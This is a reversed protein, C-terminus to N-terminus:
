GPWADADISFVWRRRPHESLSWLVRTGPELSLDEPGPPLVGAHRVLSGPAGVWLDGDASGASATVFWRGDLPTAGQMRTLGPVLVAGHRTEAGDATRALEVLRGTPDDRDYEGAVFAEGDGRRDASIFSYRMREAGEPPAWHECQPLIAVARASAAASGPAAGRRGFGLLGPRSADLIDRSDFVRVGDFTSAVWLRDGVWALGGAHTGIPRFGPGGSAVAEVLLVHRVRPRRGARLQVFSVRAGEPGGPRARAYWSVAIVREGGPGPRVDIGQPWWDADRDDRRSWRFGEVAAAAPVRTWRGTSGRGAAGALLGDLGIRPHRAAVADIVAPDTPRVELRHPHQETIAAELGTTSWLRGRDPRTSAVPDPTM